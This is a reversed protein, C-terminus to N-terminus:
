KKTPPLRRDIEAGLVDLMLEVADQDAEEDDLVALSQTFAAILVSGPAEAVSEADGALAAEVLLETPSPLPENGGELVRFPGAALQVGDRMAQQRDREEIIRRTSV